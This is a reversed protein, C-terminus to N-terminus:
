SIRGKAVSRGSGEYESTASIAWVAVGGVTFALAGLGAGKIFARREISSM